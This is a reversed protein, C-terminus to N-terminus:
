STEQYQSAVTKELSFRSIRQKPMLTKLVQFTRFFLSTGRRISEASLSLIIKASFWLMVTYLVFNKSVLLQIFCLVTGRRIKEASHSLLSEVSLRSIGKKPMYNQPIEFNESVCFPKEVFHNPVILCFLKSPFEHYGDRIKDRDNEIGFIEQFVSQNRLLFKRYRSVFCNQRFITNGEGDGGGRLSLTKRFCINQSVWFPERQIKKQVIPCFFEFSLRWM